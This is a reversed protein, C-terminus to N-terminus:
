TTIRNPIFKLIHIMELPSRMLFAMEFRGVLIGNQEKMGMM